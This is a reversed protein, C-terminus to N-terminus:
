TCGWTIEQSPDEELKWTRCAESPEMFMTAWFIVPIGQDLLALLEDPSAGTCDVPEWSLRPKGQLVVPPGESDPM